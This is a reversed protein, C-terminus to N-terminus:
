LSISEFTLNMPFFRTFYSLSYVEALGGHDKTNGGLPILFAETVPVSQGQRM